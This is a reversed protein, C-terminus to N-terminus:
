GLVFHDADVLREKHGRHRHGPIDLGRGGERGEGGERGGERGSIRVRKNNDDLCCCCYCCCCYCCLPMWVLCLEKHGRHRHDRGERRGERRRERGRGAGRRMSCWFIVQLLILAHM